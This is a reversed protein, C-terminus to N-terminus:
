YCIQTYIVTVSSHFCVLEQVTLSAKIKGIKGISAAPVHPDVNELPPAQLAALPSAGAVNLQPLDMPSGDIHSVAVLVPPFTSSTAFCQPSSPM